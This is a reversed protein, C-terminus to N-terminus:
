SKLIKIPNILSGIFSIPHTSSKITFGSLGLKSNSQSSHFNLLQSNSQSELHNCNSTNYNIKLIETKEYLTVRLFLINPHTPTSQPGKEQKTAGGTRVASRPRACCCLPTCEVQLNISSIHALKRNNFDRFDECTNYYAKIMM